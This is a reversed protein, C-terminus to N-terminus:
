AREGGNCSLFATVHQLILDPHGLTAFHKLNSDPLLVSACNPLRQRLADHSKRFMSNTDYILLTQNRIRALNELTLDGVPDRDPTQQAAKRLNLIREIQVKRRARGRAPGMLIPLDVSRELLYGFDHRKDAPIESGTAKALLGAMYDWGEWEKRRYEPLMAALVTEIAVIKDTRQPYKLAFQLAIDAGLCHGILHAREIHLADMLLRLDEALQELSYGERPVSSRGHGRLDYTVVRFNELLGPVVTLHWVALNGGLGHIMVLSPGKGMQWYHFKVGDVSIRPM